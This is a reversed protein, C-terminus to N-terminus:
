RLKLNVKERHPIWVADLKEKDILITNGLRITPFDQEKCLAYAKNMGIGLYQAMEKVSLFRNDLM